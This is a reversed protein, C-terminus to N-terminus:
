GSPRPRRAHRSRSVCIYKTSGLVQGRADRTELYPLCCCCFCRRDGMGCNQPCTAGKSHTMLVQRPDVPETPVNDTGHVPPTDSTYVTYTTAKYGPMCHQCPRNPCAGHTLYPSDERIYFLNPLSYGEDYTPAYDHITYEFNPECCLCAFPARMTQRITVGPRDLAQSLTSGVPLTGPLVGREMEAPVAAPAGGAQISYPASSPPAAKAEAGLLSESMSMAPPETRAIIRKLAGELPLVFVGVRCSSTSVM